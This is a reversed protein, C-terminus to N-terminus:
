ILAFYMYSSTVHGEALKKFGRVKFTDECM